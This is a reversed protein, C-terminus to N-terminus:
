SISSTIVAVTLTKVAKSCEESPPGKQNQFM